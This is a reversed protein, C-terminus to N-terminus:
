FDEYHVDIGLSRKHRWIDASDKVADMLSEPGCAVMLVRQCSEVAGMTEGIVVNVDMRTFNLNFTREVADSATGTLLRETSATESTTGYNFGGRQSLLGSEIGKQIESEIPTAMTEDSTVYVTVNVASGVKSVNHLHGYFWSLHEIRKVAWVFEISQHAPIDSYNLIRNMLGFTFAAGSGGAIFILKDYNETDPISGYPGEVSAWATRGPHRAAYSGVSKTFGQRSKMVLELGSPGNSVITFPHSEYLHIRPIWVYCHSGPLAVKASPKKLLLRTGGDPLPYFTAHNNIFNHTTRTARIIRDLIWMGATFIMTQPLKKAWNPRHLATLIVAAIFGVVHSIYFMEYGRHRSIGMLLVIMAVGAGMGELNAEEVFIYWRGQRGFHITYFIAHLLLLFVATYGVMRHIINLQIHSATALTALPTNRLGFFVCLAMNAASMWGFRSAWHNMQYSALINSSLIINGLIYVGFLIILGLSPYGFWEWDSSMFVPGAVPVEHNKLHKQVHSM